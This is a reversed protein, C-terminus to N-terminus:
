DAPLTRQRETWWAALMKDAGWDAGAEPVGPGNAPDPVLRVRVAFPGCAIPAASHFTECAFGAFPRGVSKGLKALRKIGGILGYRGILFKVLAGKGEAAAAVFDVFEGSRPFAFKEQNILAFGQSAAPGNGLASDGTVGLVAFAFGRIDPQRDSAHDMGGNSLRVRADHTGAKAFLGQRAFEPLDALVTFEARAALLQKRHLARGTGFKESKRKQIAAFTDAYRAFRQEEDPAIVERWSRAPQANRM